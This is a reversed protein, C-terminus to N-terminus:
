FEVASRQVGQILEVQATGSRKQSKTKAPGAERAPERRTKESADGPEAKSRGDPADRLSLLQAPRVGPTVASQTDVQNRLALSLTGISRALDLKEAQQPTVELTVANVVKPKTDDRHAEQAIALVLIGELVIKAIPQKDSEQMNAAPVSVLVDVRNGPLAFGAVGVVENVKVTIARHGAGISAALGGSAGPPALKSELVPEGSVLTTRVVRGEIAKPDEVSGALVNARPWEVTKLAATTLPTGLPVDQAAIVVKTMASAGERTSGAALVVALMGFALSVFLMLLSKKNRM